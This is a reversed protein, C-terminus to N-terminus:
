EILQDARALVSQPITLGIAKATKLNIVLEFKTPQEVPLDAPKAGKFIRDVIVAARRFVDGVSPGYFMLCGSDVLYRTTTAATPLRRQLSLGCIQPAALILANSGDLLLGNTGPKFEAFAQMVGSPDRLAVPQFEMKLAQADSAQQERLGLTKVAPEYLYAVRVLTPVAEKFLQMLKGIVGAAPLSLGTVNGGPHALSAVIGKEVASGLLAFVIPITQTAQKAAVTPATGSTVIIDVHARVLDAALEPLRDM